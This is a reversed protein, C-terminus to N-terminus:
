VQKCDVPQSKDVSESKVAESSPKPSTGVFTGIADDKWLGAALDDSDLHVYYKMTTELSSHRMLQKLVIPLVKAAWRTGFSRRLDHCTAYRDKAKDVVVNARKGIRSGIKSVQKSKHRQVCKFVPGTREPEPTALLFKAFDPTMSLLMDRRGKHAEAEIRFRPYKGSFDVAFPEGEDWSLAMSESLRLGSLWLGRLYYVWEEADDTRVKPVAAIMRDFEEGTIPRGRMLKKGKVSKPREIDPAKPMLGMKVAWAFAPALHRLHCDLTADSMGEDRLKSQFQSMVGTTISRLLMPDVVRELHNAASSFAELTRPSLSSLREKEYRERFVEWSMKPDHRYTGSLLEREWNGAFREADRMNTCKTSREVRKGSIPDDYYAFIFKRGSRRSVKV